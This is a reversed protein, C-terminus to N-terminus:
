KKALFTRSKTLATPPPLNASLVPLMPPADRPSSNGENHPRRSPLSPSPPRAGPSRPSTSPGDRPSVPSTVTPAISLGSPSSVVTRAASHTNKPTTPAAVKTPSCFTVNSICEWSFITWHFKRRPSSQHCRRNLRLNNQIIHCLHALRKRLPRPLKSRKPTKKISWHSLRSCGSRVVRWSRNFSAKRRRKRPRELPQHLPCSKKSTFHFTTWSCKSCNTVVHCWSLARSLRAALSCCHQLGFSQWALLAWWIRKSMAFACCFNSWTSWSM